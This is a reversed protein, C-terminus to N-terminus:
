GMSEIQGSPRLIFIRTQDHDNEESANRDDTTRSINIRVLLARDVQALYAQIESHRIHLRKGSSVDHGHPNNQWSEPVAVIEERRNRFCLQGPIRTLQARAIFDRTPTVWSRSLGQWEQDMEQMQRETCYQSAFPQLDFGRSSIVHSDRLELEEVSRLQEEIEEVNHEYSVRLEHIPMDLPPETSLMARALARATHPSVLGSQLHVTASYNAITATYYGSVVIWCSDIGAVRGTLHESFVSPPLMPSTWISEPAAGHFFKQLPVPSRLDSTILPDADFCNISIWQQWSGYTDATVSITPLERIMEGAALHMAHRELYTSLTEITPHSGHRHGSLRYDRNRERRRSYQCCDADTMHWKECIWREARDTVDCRHVGFCHGLPSYWYPLTDARNFYFKWPRHSQSEAVSKVHRSGHPWLMHRPMNIMHLCKEQNPTFAAMGRDSLVLLTRKALEQLGAHPFSDDLAHECIRPAHPKMAGPTEQALHLFLFLLWERASMWMQETNHFSLDVLESLLPEPHLYLMHRAAHYAQWRMRNDPQEFCKYLMAAMGDGDADVSTSRTNHNEQGLLDATIEELSAEPMYRALVGAMEYAVHPSFCHSHSTLCKLVIRLREEKTRGLTEILDTAAQPFNTNYNLLEHLHKELYRPINTLAWDRVGPSTMWECTLQGLTSLMAHRGEFDREPTYGVLLGLFVLRERGRMYHAIAMIRKHRATPYPDLDELIPKLMGISAAKKRRIRRLVNDEANCRADSTVARHSGQPTWNETIAYFERCEELNRIIDPPMGHKSGWVVLEDCMRPRERMPAKLRVQKSVTAFLTGSDTPNSGHFSSLARLANKIYASDITGLYHLCLAYAPSVQGGEGLGAALKAVVESLPTRENEDWDFAAGLGVSSDLSAITRLYAGWPIREDEEMMPWYREIARRIGFALTRRNEQATDYICHRAVSAIANLFSSADEDIGSAAEMAEYFYEKSLERDVRLLIQACEMLRRVAISACVGERGCWTARVKAVFEIAQDQYEDRNSLIDASSMHLEVPAFGMIRESAAVLRDIIDHNTGNAHVIMQAASIVFAEYLPKCPGWEDVASAEWQDVLPTLRKAITVVSWRAIAARARLEYVPLVAEIQKLIDYEDIYPRRESKLRTYEEQLLTEVTLDAGELACKLAVIRAHGDLQRRWQSATVRSYLREPDPLRLRKLIELLTDHPTGCLAAAEVFSVIWEGILDNKHEYKALWAKLRCAVSMVEAKSPM